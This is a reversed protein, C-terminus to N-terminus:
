NICSGLSIYGLDTANLLTSMHMNTLMTRSLPQRLQKVYIKFSPTLQAIDIGWGQNGTNGGLTQPQCIYHLENFSMLMVENPKLAFDGQNCYRRKLTYSGVKKLDAGYLDWVTESEDLVITQQNALTAQFQKGTRKFSSRVMIIKKDNDNFVIQDNVNGLLLFEWDNTYYTPQSPLQPDINVINYVGSRILQFLDSGGAIYVVTKGNAAEQALNTLASQHWNKWGHGALKQWIVSYLYRLAQHKDADVLMRQTTTPFKDGFVWEAYRNALNFMLEIKRSETQGSFLLQTIGTFQEVLNNSTNNKDGNDFLGFNSLLDVLSGIDTDALLYFTQLNQLFVDNLPMAIQYGYDTMCGNTFTKLFPLQRNFVRLQMEYSAKFDEVFQENITETLPQFSCDPIIQQIQIWRKFVEAADKVVANSTMSTTLAFLTAALIKKM